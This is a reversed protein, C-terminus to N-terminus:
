QMSDMLYNFLYVLSNRKQWISPNIHLLLDTLMSSRSSQFCDRFMWNWKTIWYLWDTIGLTSYVLIWELISCLLEIWGNKM